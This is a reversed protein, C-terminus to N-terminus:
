RKLRQQQRQAYKRLMSEVEQEADVHAEMDETAVRLRRLQEELEEHSTDNDLMSEVSALSHLESLSSSVQSLSEELEDEDITLKRGLNKTSRWDQIYMLQDIFGDVRKILLDFNHLTLQREQEIEELVEKSISVSTPPTPYPTKLEERLQRVKQLYTRLERVGKQYFTDSQQELSDPIQISPQRLVAERFHNKYQLLAKSRWVTCLAKKQLEVRKQLVTCDAEYREILEVAAEKQRLRLKQKEIHVLQKKHAVISALLERELDNLKLLTQKVKDEDEEEPNFFLRQLGYGISATMLGVFVSFLLILGVAPM